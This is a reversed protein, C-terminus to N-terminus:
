RHTQLLTTFIQFMSYKDCFRKVYKGLKTISYIVKKM